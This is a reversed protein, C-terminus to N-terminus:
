SILPELTIIPPRNRVARWHNRFANRREETAGAVKWLHGAYTQIDFPLSIDSKATVITPLGRGLAYGLELFCNPRVGTIDAVVVSSRHLKVFIEQDIRAHEFPQVGDVVVFKYGLEDEFIPQVVNDFYNQVDIFEKHKCNLLRVAFAKPAELDELLSLIGEVREDIATRSPFNIRNIWQHTTRSKAKFLRDAANRSLGLDFLKRAGTGKATVPANLPIVPKGAEHYLNALYQVGDSGGIAILIEGRRAQLEMRKSNMNWHSVNEIEVLNSVRLEDWLKLFQTPIQEESKHHQVAIALTEISSSPRQNLNERITQWVLWDFCIPQKDSPRLKEDDVPIVFTAGCEVLQAVLKAILNRAEAVSETTAQRIDLAISGAIHIRRGHLFSKAM